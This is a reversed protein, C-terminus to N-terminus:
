PRPHCREFAAHLHSKSVHTYRDTSSINAHGLMEQIVRLDAGHDLLHTAFSHRLTHPSIRKTIGAVKAWYKVRKWVEIRNLPKGKETIFLFTNKDSEHQDRYNTLWYDVAKIAMKGIPVIREKNGKGKVKVFTDDVDYIKLYTLESVRLGCAYLLELCAIDRAGLFNDQAPAALFRDMEEQNLVEPILQWLKPGPISAAENTKILGERKLFKYFVKISILIRNLSSSKYGKTKLTGIFAEISLESALYVEVDHRYASLTNLSAGKESALYAVFNEVQDKM